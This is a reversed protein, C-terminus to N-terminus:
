LVQLIFAFIFTLKSENVSNESFLTIEDARSTRILMHTLVHTLVHMLMHTLVHTLVNM